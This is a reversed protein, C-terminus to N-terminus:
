AVCWRSPCVSPNLCWHAASPGDSDLESASPSAGSPMRPPAVAVSGEGTRSAAAQLMPLSAETGIAELVRCSEVRVRVDPAKQFAQLLAPEAVVGLERLLRLVHGYDDPMRGTLVEATRPSPDLRALVELAERWPGYSRDKCRDALAGANTRDGWVRLARLAERQVNEDRDSLAAELAKAVDARRGPEPQAEAL